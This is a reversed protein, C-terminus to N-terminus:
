STISKLLPVVADLKKWAEFANSQIPSHRAGMHYALNTRCENIGKTLATGIGSFNQTSLDLTNGYRLEERVIKDLGDSAFHEKGNVRIKINDASLVVVPVNGVFINLPSKWSKIDIWQQGGLSVDIMFLIGGSADCVVIDAAKNFDNTPSEQNKRGIGTDFAPPALYVQAGQGLKSNSLVKSFIYESFIARGMCSSAPICDLYKALETIRQDTGTANYGSSDIARQCRHGDYSAVSSRYDQIVAKVGLFPTEKGEM